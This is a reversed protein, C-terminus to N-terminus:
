QTLTARGSPVDITCQKGDFYGNAPQGNGLYRVQAIIGIATDGDRSVVDVNANTGQWDQGDWYALAIQISAGAIWKQRRLEQVTQSAM